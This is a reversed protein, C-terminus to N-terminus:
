KSYNEAWGGEAALPIDPCWWLPTTMCQYMFQYCKEAERLKPHAVVEDHTTMVCRYKKDIMLMQEAVIIRALAQVLNECLLGGYIKKRMEGSQYTWEEFGKEENRAKRLNPYKLSMGNPLLVWGNGDGDGGWSICKHAGSVGLAMDEIIQTCIKWGEAIRYNAARYTRVIHECQSLPFNVRPGGLAGKALTTQFKAAGMQFGLGLVCVKGIFRELEDKKWITRGYVVDGFRCYADREDERMPRRQDKPLASVEAAYADSKRFAELLDEQGWLWGNVRAEIQGSDCVSLAHGKGALISLRLEGGRTLNQMNMKNSGGWRGTNGTVFIRGGSRALWFGTQTSACYTKMPASILYKDHKAIKAFARGRFTVSFNTRRNGKAEVRYTSASRGCLHAMTTAWEANIEDSTSYVLGGAHNLYGDWHQLEDFFAERADPTSDLVWPGFFKREPTLWAPYDEHRVIFRVFGPHSPYSQEIFPAGAALLLQRAREIKRPKKVFICMRRGVASNTEFSGDAQVMVLVRMQEATITGDSELRGGIPVDFANRDVLNGAQETEWRRSKQTFYPMTHGLTFDCTVYPASVQLWQDEVPGEFKSADLFEIRQDPHVQAIEGGQWADLRVWGSRTLVETTGPVCHARYYSYGVPLKMGDRGAELFRGARTINITSKVALRVDVLHRLGEQIATAHLIDAPDEPDLDPRVDWVREPLDVFDLDDKAFAYSWKRDIQAEREEKGLKMWASSIKRPIAEEPLGARILLDVFKENSGVVKKVVAMHREDGELTDRGSKKDLVGRYRGKEDWADYESPDPVAALMAEKRKAVEREYEAQVRPIDVRLVPDCFMRITIHTLDMESAPFVKHMETFIRFCEDVDRECYAGIAATLQKSWNLVGLTSELAGQIKGQGGYFLAVEDLGAGIENSHLGRAMSLTDYYRLPVIGYHHSLILGDFATNHALLSHTAWNIKKLERAIAAGTFTRTKKNGIKIGVMQAKFRPDRIYESTSMKKLTYDQDYYTEFDLTVLRDWDVKALEYKAGVVNTISPAAATSKKKIASGWGM